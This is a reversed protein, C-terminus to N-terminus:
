RVWRFLWQDMEPTGMVLELGETERKEELFDIIKKQYSFRDLDHAALRHYIWVHKPEKEARGAKVPRHIEFRAM